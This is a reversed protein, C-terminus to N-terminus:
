RGWTRDSYHGILPQVILGTVPGAIWLFALDDVSSGLSQFIRSVNANQLGFALQIGFFGFSVNWLGWFSQRPKESITM